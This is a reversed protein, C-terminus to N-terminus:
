PFRVSLLLTGAADWLRTTATIGNKMAEEKTLERYHDDILSMGCHEDVIEVRDGDVKDSYLYERGRVVM